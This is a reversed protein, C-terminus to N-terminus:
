DADCTFFCADINNLIELVHKVNNHAGHGNVRDMTQIIAVGYQSDPNQHPLLRSYNLISISVYMESSFDLDYLILLLGGLDAGSSTIVEERVPCKCPSSIIRSALKCLSFGLHKLTLNGDTKANYRCSGVGLIEL